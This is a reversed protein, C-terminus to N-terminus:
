TESCPIYKCLDAGDVGYFAEDCVTANEPLWVRKLSTCDMFTAPQLEKVGKPITVELLNDCKAFAGRGITELSEPLHISQLTCCGMFAREGISRVTNPIQISVLNTCGSFADDGIDTIGYPIVAKEIRKDVCEALKTGRLKYPLCCGMVKLTAIDQAICDANTFVRVGSDSVGLIGNLKRLTSLSVREEINDTTDTVIATNSNLQSVYLM